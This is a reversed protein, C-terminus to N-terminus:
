RSLLRDARLSATGVGAYCSLRFDAPESSTHHTPRQGIERSNRSKGSTRTQDARNRDAVIGARDVAGAVSIEESMTAASAALQPPPPSADGDVDGAGAVVVTAAGIVSVVRAPALSDSKSM